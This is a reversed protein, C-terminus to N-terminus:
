VKEKWLWETFLYQGDLCHKRRRVPSEVRNMDGGHEHSHKIEYFGLMM